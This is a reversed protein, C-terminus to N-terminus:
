ARSKRRLGVKDRGNSPVEGCRAVCLLRPKKLLDREMRVEALERKVRAQEMELDALPKQNKGVGGLKGRSAVYGWNKLAGGPLSLRKALEPRMLGGVEQLRVAQARFEQPCIVRHVREM